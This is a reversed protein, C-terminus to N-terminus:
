VTLYLHKFNINLYVSYKEESNVTEYHTWLM